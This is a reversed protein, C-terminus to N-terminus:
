FRDGQKKREFLKRVEKALKTLEEELTTREEEVDMIKGDESFRQAESILLAAETPQEVIFIKEELEDVRDKNKMNM